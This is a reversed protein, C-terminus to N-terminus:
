AGVLVTEEVSLLVRGAGYLVTCYCLDAHNVGTLVGGVNVGLLRLM